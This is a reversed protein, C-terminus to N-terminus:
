FGPGDEGPADTRAVAEPAAIRREQGIVPGAGRIHPMRWSVGGARNRMFHGRVWHARRRTQDKGDAERMALHQGRGFEGLSIRSIRTAPLDEGERMARRREARSQGSEEDVELMGRHSLMESMAVALGFHLINMEEHEAKAAHFDARAGPECAAIAQEFHPTDHKWGGGEPAFTMVSLAPAFHRDDRNMFRVTIGDERQHILAAQQQTSGPIDREIWLLPFPLRAGKFMPFIGDGMEQLLNSLMEAAEFELRFKQAMGIAEVVDASDRRIRRIRDALPDSAFAPPEKLSTVLNQYYARATDIMRPM